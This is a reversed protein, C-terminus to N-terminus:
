GQERSKQTPLLSGVKIETLTDGRTEGWAAGKLDGDASSPSINGLAFHVACARRKRLRLQCNKTCVPTVMRPMKCLSTLRSQDAARGIDENRGPM